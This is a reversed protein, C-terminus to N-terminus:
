TGSKFFAQVDNAALTSGMQFGKVYSIVFIAKYIRGSILISNM